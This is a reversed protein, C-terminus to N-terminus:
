WYGGSYPNFGLDKFIKLIDNRRQRLAKKLYSSEGGAEIVKKYTAIAEETKKYDSSGPSLYKMEKELGEIISELYTISRRGDPYGAQEIVANINTDTAINMFNKLILELRYKDKVNVEGNKVEILNHYAENVPQGPFQPNALVEALQNVDFNEPFGKHGGRARSFLGAGNDIFAIHGFQDSMINWPTRDYQGLWADILLARQILESQKLKSPLSLGTVKYGELFEMKLKLEDGVMVNDTEPVKVGALKLFRQGVLNARLTHEPGGKILFKKGFKDQWLEMPHTGISEGSYDQVFTLGELPNQKLYEIRKQANLRPAFNRLSAHEVVWYGLQASVSHPRGDPQLKGRKDTKLNAPSEMNQPRHDEIKTIANQQLDHTRRKRSLETRENLSSSLLAIKKNIEGATLQVGQEDALHEIALEPITGRFGTDIFTFDLSIGNQMLYETIREKTEVSRMIRTIVVYRIEKDSVGFTSAKLATFFFRGDRGFVVVKKADSDELKDVAEWYIPTDEEEVKKYLDLNEKYTNILEIFKNFSSGSIPLGTEENFSISQSNYVLDNAMLWRIKEALLTRFDPLERTKNYWAHYMLFSGASNPLEPFDFNLDNKIYREIRALGDKLYYSFFPSINKENQSIFKRLIELKALSEERKGSLVASCLIEGVSLTVLRFLEQRNLMKLNEGELIQEDVIGSLLNLNAEWPDTDEETRSTTNITGELAKLYNDETVSIGKEVRPRFRGSFNFFRGGEWRRSERNLIIQTQDSHYIKDKSTPQNEALKKSEEADKVWGNYQKELEILRVVEEEENFVDVAFENKRDSYTQTNADYLLKYKQFWGNFTTDQEVLLQLAERLGDEGLIARLVAVPRYLDNDLFQERAYGPTLINNIYRIIAEVAKPDNNEKLFELINMVSSFDQNNWIKPNDLLQSFFETSDEYGLNRYLKILYYIETDSSSSSIKDKIINQLAVGEKKLSFWFKRAKLLSEKYSLPVEDDLWVHMFSKLRAQTHLETMGLVKDILKDFDAEKKIIPEKIKDHHLGFVEGHIKPYIKQEKIIEKTNIFEKKISKQISEEKNEAKDIFDKFKELISM